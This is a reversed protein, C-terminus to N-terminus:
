KEKTADASLCSLEMAMRRATQKQGSAKSQRCVCSSVSAQSTLNRRGAQQQVTVNPAGPDLLAFTDRAGNRGHVRVPVVQLLTIPTKDEISALQLRWSGSKNLTQESRSGTRLSGAGLESTPSAYSRAMATSQRASPRSTPVQM